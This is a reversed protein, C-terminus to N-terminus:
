NQGEKKEARGLAPRLILRLVLGLVVFLLVNRFSRTLFARAFFAQLFFGPMNVDRFVQLALVDKRRFIARLQFRAFVLLLGSWGVRLLCLAGYGTRGGRLVYVAGRYRRASIGRCRRSIGRVNREAVDGAAQPFFLLRLLKLAGRFKM